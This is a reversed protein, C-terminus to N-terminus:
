LQTTLIILIITAVTTSSPPKNNNNDKITNRGFYFGVITQLVDKFVSNSQVAMSIMCGAIIMIAIVDIPDFKDALRKTM